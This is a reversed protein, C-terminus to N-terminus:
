RRTRGSFPAVPCAMKALRERTLGLSLRREGITEGLKRTNM